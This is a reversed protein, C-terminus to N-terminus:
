FKVNLRAVTKFDYVPYDRIMPVGIELSVTVDKMVTRGVMFDFPLFLRGTQGTIPDGFNLRIDPNPYFTVFWRRPLDINLTPALQLNSINRKSPDGAFSVDYRVLGTFYSDAGLELLMYRAGVIPLAQWRGSTLDASGTPAIIRVGAGAAWRSNLTKILAAQVDADGLGDIFEGLPNGATIPNRDVFPLNGRLALTWQPAIDFKLDSRLIVSDTTVTRITGPESGSGPATRYEYRLQFLNQPRTFDQGNNDVAGNAGAQSATPARQAQAQDLAVFVATGV